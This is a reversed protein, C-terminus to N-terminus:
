PRPASFLRVVADNATHASSNARLGAANGDLGGALGDLAPGWSDVLGALADALSWGTLATGAARGAALAAEAVPRLADALEAAHRAAADLAAPDVVITGSTM